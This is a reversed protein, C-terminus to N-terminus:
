FAAHWTVAAGGPVPKVDLDLLRAMGGARKWELYANRRSVGVVLLPIGILSM